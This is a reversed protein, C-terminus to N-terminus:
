VLEVLIKGVEVRDELVVCDVNLSSFQEAAVDSLLEIARSQQPATPLCKTRSVFCLGYGNLCLARDLSGRAIEKRWRRGCVHRGVFEPCRGGLAVWQALAGDLVTGISGGNFRHPCVTGWRQRWWDVPVIRLVPELTERILKKQYSRRHRGLARRAM